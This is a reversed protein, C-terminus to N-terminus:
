WCSQPLLLVTSAAVQVCLPELIEVQEMQLPARLADTELAFCVQSLPDTVAAAVQPLSPVCNNVQVTQLSVFLSVRDLVFSCVQSLPLTVEAAVQVLSPAFVNVQVTQLSVFVSPVGAFSVMGTVVAGSVVGVTVRGASVTGLVVCLVAVAGVCGSGCSFLVMVMPLVGVSCSGNGAPQIVPIERNQTKAAAQPM